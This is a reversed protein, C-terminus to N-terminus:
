GFARDLPNNSPRGKAEFLKAVADSNTADVGLGFVTETPFAVLGGDRIIKAAREVSDIYETLM